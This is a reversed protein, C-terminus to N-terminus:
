NVSGALVSTASSASSNCAGAGSATVSPHLLTFSSADIGAPPSARMPGGRVETGIVSYPNSSSSSSTSPVQSSAAPPPQHVGSSSSSQPKDRDNDHIVTTLIEIESQFTNNPQGFTNNM